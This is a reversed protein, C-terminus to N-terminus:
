NHIVTVSCLTVLDGTVIRSALFLYNILGKVTVLDCPTDSSNM